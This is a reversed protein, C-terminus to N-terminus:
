CGESVDIWRVGLQASPGLEAALRSSVIVAVKWGSVRFISADGTRASDIVLKVIMRYQGVKDRRHDDLTWKDGITRDEDICEVSRLLNLIAARGTDLVVPIVQVDPSSAALCDALAADVVLMDFPGFTVPFRHGSHKTGVRLEPGDYPTCSTFLRPDLVRGDATEPSHPFWGAPAKPDRTLRFYRSMGDNM